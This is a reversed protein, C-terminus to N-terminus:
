NKNFSQLKDLKRTDATSSNTKEVVDSKQHLKKNVNTLNLM